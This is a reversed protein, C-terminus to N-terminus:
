YDGKRFMEMLPKGLGPNLGFPNLNKLFEYSVGAGILAGSTFTNCNGENKLIDPFKAYARSDPKYRDFAEMIDKIFETDTKGEPTSILYSGKIDKMDWNLDVSWNKQSGLTKDKSEYASLLWRKEGGFDDPNDPKIEIFTHVGYEGLSSIVPIRLRRAILWVERGDDDLYKYPNNLGYAYLNLRQPNNLMTQNIKGTAPNVPGVPDTSIFRGINSSMYRAGFYSLGTETDKEKGVFKKNNEISSTVNWEEGFPKYDAKWVVSGSADTMALPTGSPDTHYFYITDALGTHTFLFTILVICSTLKLLKNM